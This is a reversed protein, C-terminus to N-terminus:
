TALESGAGPGPTQVFIRVPSLEIAVIEGAEFGAYASAFESTYEVFVLEERFCACQRATEAADEPSTDAIRAAPAKIQISRHDHPRTFTVAIAGGKSIADLLVSNGPERMLVRM